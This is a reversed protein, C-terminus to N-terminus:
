AELMIERLTKSESNKACSYLQAPAVELLEALKFFSAEPISFKSDAPTNIWLRLGQRTIGLERAIYPVAKRRMVEPLESIIEDIRYKKETSTILNVPNTLIRNTM